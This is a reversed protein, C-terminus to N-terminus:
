LPKTGQMNESGSNLMVAESMTLETLWRHWSKCRIFILGTMLIVNNWQSELSRLDSCQHEKYRTTKFNDTKTTFTDAPLTKEKQLM